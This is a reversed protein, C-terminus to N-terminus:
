KGCPQGRQNSPDTIEPGNVAVSFSREAPMAILTMGSPGNGQGVFSPELRVDRATM